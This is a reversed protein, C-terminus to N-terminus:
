MSRQSSPPIKARMFSISTLSRPMLRNCDSGLTLRTKFKSRGNLGQSSGMQFRAEQLQTRASLPSQHAWPHLRAWQHLRARTPLRAKTPLRPLLSPPLLSPLLLSTKRCPPISADLVAFGSSPSSCCLQQSHLCGSAQPTDLSRSFPVVLFSRSPTFRCRALVPTDGGQGALPGSTIYAGM